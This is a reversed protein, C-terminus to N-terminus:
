MPQSEERAGMVEFAAMAGQCVGLCESFGDGGTFDDRDWLEGGSNPDGGHTTDGSTFDDREWLADDSNPDGGHTADSHMLQLMQACRGERGACEIFLTPDADSQLRRRHGDGSFM